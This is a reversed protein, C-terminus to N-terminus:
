IHCVVLQMKDEDVQRSEDEAEGAWYIADAVADDATKQLSLNETCHFYPQLPIYNRHFGGVSLGSALKKFTSAARVANTRLRGVDYAQFDSENQVATLVAAGLYSEQACRRLEQGADRLEALSDEGLAFRREAIENRTSSMRFLVNVMEKFNSQNFDEPSQVFDELYITVDNYDDVADAFVGIESTLSNDGVDPDYRMGYASVVDDNGMLAAGKLLWKVTERLGKIAQEELGPADTLQEFMGKAALLNPEDDSYHTLIYDLTFSPSSRFNSLREKGCDLKDQAELLMEYEALSYGLAKHQLNGALGVAIILIAARVLYKM